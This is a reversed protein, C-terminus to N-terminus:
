AAAQDLLSNIRRVMDWSRRRVDDDVISLV